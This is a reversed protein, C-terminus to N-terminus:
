GILGLTEILELDNIDAETGAHDQQADFDFPDALLRVRLALLEAQKTTKIERDLEVKHRSWTRVVRCARLLCRRLLEFVTATTHLAATQQWDANVQQQLSNSKLHRSNMRFPIRPKRESTRLVVRIPSHDSLVQTALVETVAQPFLALLSLSCYFRDLRKFIRVPTVVGEVNIQHNDWTYRIPANPAPLYEVLGLVVSLSARCADQELSALDTPVGGLQDSACLSMNFNGGVLWARSPDMLNALSEWLAARDRRENPGYVNLLPALPSAM